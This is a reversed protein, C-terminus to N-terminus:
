DVLAAILMAYEVSFDREARGTVENTAATAEATAISGRASASCQPPRARAVACPGILSRRAGARVVLGVCVTKAKASAIATRASVDPVVVVVPTPAPVPAWIVLPEPARFVYPQAPLPNTLRATFGSAKSRSAAHGMPGRADHIRQLKKHPSLQSRRAAPGSFLLLLSM